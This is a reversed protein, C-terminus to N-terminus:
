NKVFVTQTPYAFEIGKEEFIRHLNINVKQQIDMYTLYDPSEVYYVVEFILASDGFSQFHCRDFRSREQSGILEEVIQPIDRLQAQKTDYTVGFHFVIRREEMKKYNRIRANTLYSNPVVIMEGGLSRIRTTKLGVLEITGMFDEFIIFDGIEFPKDLGIAFSSFADGLVSQLALGVALGGVGLGALLTSVNVGFNDLLFLVGSVYVLTKFIINLNRRLSINKPSNEEGGNTLHKVLFVIVPNLIIFVQFLLIVSVTVKLGFQIKEPLSFHSIGFSIAVIVIIKHNIRGLVDAILDVVNPLQNKALKDFFRKLLGISIVLVLWLAFARFTALFIDQYTTEFVRETTWAPWSIM